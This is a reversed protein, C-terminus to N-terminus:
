KPMPIFVKIHNKEVKKVAPKRVPPPTKKKMSMFYYACALVLIVVFFYIVKRVPLASCKGSQAPVENGHCEEM